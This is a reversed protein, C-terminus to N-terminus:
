EREVNASYEPPPRCKRMEVTVIPLVFRGCRCSSGNWSSEGLVEGCQSCKVEGEQDVIGQVTGNSKRLYWVECQLIEDLRISDRDSYLTSHPHLIWPSFLRNGCALCHFFVAQDPFLDDELQRLQLMFGPNPRICPRRSRVYNIAENLKVRLAQMVYGVVVAASRSVGAFCHVLVRGGEMGVRVFALARPLDSLLDAGIADGLKLELYQFEGPFKAKCEMACVLIHTISHSKLTQFDYAAETSGLFLGPLIEDM